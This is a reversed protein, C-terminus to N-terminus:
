CRLANFDQRGVIAYPRPSANTKSAAAADILLHTGARAAFAAHHMVSYAGTAANALLLGGASVPAAVVGASTTIPPSFGGITVRGVIASRTQLNPAYFVRNSNGGVWAIGQGDSAFGWAGEANVLALPTPQPQHQLLSYAHMTTNTGPRPSEAWLLLGGKAIDIWGPHGRHVVATTGRSLDLVVVQGAGRADLGEVWAAFGSRLVPDQWPSSITQGSATRHPRGVISVRGTSRDWMKVVYDDLSTQSRYEKWVAFQGDFDGGAQVDANEFRDIESRIQGNTADVLAVGDFGPGQVQAVVQHVDPASAFPTISYPGKSSWGKTIQSVLKAPM